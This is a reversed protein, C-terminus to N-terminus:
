NHYRLAFAAVVGLLAVTAVILANYGVIQPFLCGVCLKGNVYAKSSFILTNYKLEVRDKEEDGVEFEMYDTFWISFKKKNIIEEGDVKVIDRGSLLSSFVEISHVESKGVQFVALM